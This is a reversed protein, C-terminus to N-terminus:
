KCCLTSVYKHLTKDMLVSDREWVCSQFNNNVQPWKMALSRCQPINIRRLVCDPYMLRNSNRWGHGYIQHFSSVLWLITKTMVLSCSVMGTLLCSDEWSDYHSVMRQFAAPANHSLIMIRSPSPDHHRKGSSWNGLPGFVFPINWLNGCAERSVDLTCM